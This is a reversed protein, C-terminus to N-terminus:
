SKATLSFTDTIWKSIKKNKIKKILETKTKNISKSRRNLLCFHTMHLQKCSRHLPMANFSQSLWIYGPPHKETALATNWWSGWLWEQTSTIWIIHLFHIIRPKFVRLTYMLHTFFNVTFWVILNLLISKKPNRILCTLVLFFTKYSIFFTFSIEWM